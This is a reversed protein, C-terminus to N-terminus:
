NAYRVWKGESRIESEDRPWHQAHTSGTKMSSTEAEHAFFIGHLMVAGELKNRYTWLAENTSTLATVPDEHWQAGALAYAPVGRHVESSYWCVIDAGAAIERPTARLGTFAAQWDETCLKGATVGAQDPDLAPDNETVAVKITQIWIRPDILMTGLGEVQKPRGTQTFEPVSAVNAAEAGWRWHMHAAHFAGPSSIMSGDGRTGWWHINDWCERVNFSPDVFDSMGHNTGQGVVELILQKEVSDFIQRAVGRHWAWHRIGSALVKIKSVSDNDQFLGAQNSGAPPNSKSEPAPVSDVALHLRYDFRISEIRQFIQTRDVAPNPTMSFTTMPHCRAALLSKTPEHPPDNGYNSFLFIQSINLASIDCNRFPSLVGEEKSAYDARLGFGSYNGGEEFYSKLLRMEDAAAKLRELYTKGAAGQIAPATVQQPVLGQITGFTFNAPDLTVLVSQQALVSGSPDVEAVKLRIGVLRISRAFNNGRHVINRLVLGGDRPLHLEQGGAAATSPQAETAFSWGTTPDFTPLIM